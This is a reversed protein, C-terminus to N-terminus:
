VCLINDGLYIILLMNIGIGWCGFECDKYFSKYDVGVFLVRLYFYLNVIKM